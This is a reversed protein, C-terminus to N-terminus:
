SHFKSILMVSNSGITMFKYIYGIPFRHSANDYINKEVFIGKAGMGRSYVELGVLIFEFM